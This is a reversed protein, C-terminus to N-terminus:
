SLPVIQGAVVFCREYVFLGALAFIGAFALLAPQAAPAFLAICLMVTPILSGIAFFQGWFAEKLGGHSIHRAALAVHRNAHAGFVEAM